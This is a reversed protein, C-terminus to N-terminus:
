FNSTRSILPPTGATAAFICTLLRIRKQAEDKSVEAASTSDLYDNRGGAGARDFFKAAARFMKAEPSNSSARNVNDNVAADVNVRRRKRPPASAPAQVGDVGSESGIVSPAAASM